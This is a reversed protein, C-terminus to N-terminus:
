PFPHLAVRKGESKDIKTYLSRIWALSLCLASGRSAMCIKEMITKEHFILEHVTEERSKARRLSSKGRALTWVEYDRPKTRGDVFLLYDSALPLNVNKPTVRCVMIM